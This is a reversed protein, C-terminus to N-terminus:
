VIKGTYIFHDEMLISQHDFVSSDCENQMLFSPDGTASKYVLGTWRRWTSIVVWNILGFTYFCSKSFVFLICMPSCFAQTPINM